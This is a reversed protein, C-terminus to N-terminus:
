PQSVGAALRPQDTSIFIYKLGEPRCMGHDITSGDPLGDPDEGEKARSAIEISIATVFNHGLVL